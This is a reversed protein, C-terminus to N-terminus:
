ISVYIQKVEEFTENHQFNVTLIQMKDLVKTKRNVVSIFKLEGTKKGGFLMLNRVLNLTGKAINKRQQFVFVIM